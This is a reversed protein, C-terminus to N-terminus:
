PLWILHMIIDSFSWVWQFSVSPFSPSPLPFPSPPPALPFPLSPFPLSPFPLSPFFGHTRQEGSQYDNQMKELEGWIRKELQSMKKSVKNEITKVKNIEAEQKQSNMFNELKSSLQLMKEEM